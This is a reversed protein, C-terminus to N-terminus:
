ALSEWLDRHRRASTAWTLPVAHARGSEALRSRLEEDTGVEVIAEAMGEVDLPDVVKAAAAVSPVPSSVVPTGERMAELPPLGFGEALPVYALLRARRYVAALTAGDLAHTLVVGPPAKVHPGWGAPGVVVMRWQEPLRDRAIRYAELLRPLNKRPELTSVSLVYGGTVGLRALLEDAAGFDPPPLHDCGHPIVRIRERDAGAGVLDAAVKESTAVLKTAYRLTRRLAAEHWSRGRRPFTEPAERFALDHVMVSLRSGRAPPTALSTAHVVDYGKPVDLLRHDWARVMIPGPLACERLPWGLDRVPDAGGRAKSAYLNLDVSAQPVAPELDAFGKLLGLAYTGIGGPVRRRLQEVVLLVRVPRQARSM